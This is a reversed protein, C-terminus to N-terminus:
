KSEDFGSFGHRGDPTNHDDGSQCGCGCGGCRQLPWSPRHGHDNRKCGAASDIGACANHRRPQAFDQRLLHDDFIDARSGTSHDTGGPHRFGCGVTILHQETMGTGM